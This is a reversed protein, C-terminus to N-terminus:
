VYTNSPHDGLHCFYISHSNNVIEAVVSFSCNQLRRNFSLKLPALFPTLQWSETWFLLLCFTFVDGFTHVPAASVCSPVSLHPQPTILSSISKSAWQAALAGHCDSEKSLECEHTPPQKKERGKKKTMGDRKDNTLFNTCKNWSCRSQLGKICQFQKWAKFSCRSHKQIDTEMLSYNQKLM